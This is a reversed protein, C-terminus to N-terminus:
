LSSAQQLSCSPISNALQTPEGPFALECAEYVEMTAVKKKIPLKGVADSNTKRKRPAAKKGTAKDAEESTKRPAAKKKGTATKPAAKKEGKDESTEPPAKRLALPVEDEEKSAKKGKFRTAVQINTRGELGAAIRVWKNPKDGWKKYVTM